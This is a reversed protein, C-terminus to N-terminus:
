THQLNFNYISYFNTQMGFFFSSLESIAWVIVSMDNPGTKTVAVRGMTNTM